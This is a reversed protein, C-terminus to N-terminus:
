FDPSEHIRHQLEDVQDRTPLGRRDLNIKAVGLSLELERMSAMARQHALHAIEVIARALSSEALRYADATLQLGVFGYYSYTVIISRDRNYGVFLEPEDHATPEEVAFANNSM